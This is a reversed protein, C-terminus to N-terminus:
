PARPRVRPARVRGRAEAGPAHDPDSPTHAAGARGRPRTRRAHDRRGHPATREGHAFSRSPPSKLGPARNRHAASPEPGHSATLPSSTTPTDSPCVDAWAGVAARVRTPRGSSDSASADIISSTCACEPATYRSAASSGTSSIATTAPRGRANEAGHSRTPSLAGIGTASATRSRRSTQTRPSSSM